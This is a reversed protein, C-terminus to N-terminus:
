SEKRGRKVQRLTPGVVALSKVAIGNIIEGDAGPTNVKEYQPIAYLVPDALEVDETLFDSLGSSTVAGTIYTQVNLRPAESAWDLMNRSGFKIEEDLLVGRLFMRGRRRNYGAPNRNVQLTIGGPAYAEQPVNHRTSNGSFNLTAVYFSNQPQQQNDKADTIYVSKFRVWSAVMLREFTLLSQLLSTSNLNIQGLSDVANDAGVADLDADLLETAGNGNTLFGHTNVWTEGNVEKEIIILGTAM